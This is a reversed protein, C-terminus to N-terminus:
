GLLEALEEPTRNIGVFVPVDNLTYLRVKTERLAKVVDQFDSLNETEYSVIFENDDIGFSYALTQRVSPFAKGTSIHQDMMEQRADRGLLYWEKTKTFPYVILYRSRQASIISREEVAGKKAYVSPRILGLMTHSIELYKGLGKNLLRSILEQMLDISSGSIWLMIDANAKLGITSYLNITILSDPIKLERIFEEHGNQKIEDALQRWKSDLKFLIFIVFQQRNMKKGSFIGNLHM